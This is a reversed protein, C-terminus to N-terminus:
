EFILSKRLATELDEASVAVAEIPDPPAHFVRAFRGDGGDGNELVLPRTQSTYGDM